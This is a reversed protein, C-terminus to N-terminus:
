DSFVAIPKKKKKVGVQNKKLLYSFKKTTHVQNYLYRCPDFINKKYATVTNALNKKIFNTM